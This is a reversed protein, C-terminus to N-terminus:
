VCRSTYLLCHPLDNRQKVFILGFLVGLVHQAIHLEVGLLPKPISRWHRQAVHQDLDLVLTMANGGRHAVLDELREEGGLFDALAGPEARDRICM